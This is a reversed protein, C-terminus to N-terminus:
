QRCRALRTTSQIPTSPSPKPRRVRCKSTSGTRGRAWRSDTPPVTSITLSRPMLRTKLPMHLRREGSFLDDGLHHTQMVGVAEPNSGDSTSQRDRTVGHPPNQVSSRFPRRLARPSRRQEIGIQRLDFLPHVIRRLEFRRRNELPQPAEAEGAADGDHAVFHALNARAFGLCKQRQVKGRARHHLDVPRVETVCQRAAGPADAREDGYQRVRPMEVELECHALGEAREHAAHIARQREKAARRRETEKVVHLRNHERVRGQCRAEM